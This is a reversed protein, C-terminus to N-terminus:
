LLFYHVFLIIIIGLPATMVNSRNTYIHPTSLACFVFYLKRPWCFERLIIKVSLKIKRKKKKSTITPWDDKESIQPRYGSTERIKYKKKALTKHTIFASILLIYVNKLQLQLSYVVVVCEEWWICYERLVCSVMYGDFQNM